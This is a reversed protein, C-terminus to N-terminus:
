RPRVAFFEQLKQGPDDAKMFAEGILFANIGNKQLHAVDKASHIGSESVLLCEKSAKNALRISTELSTEFTHLNRNNIGILKRGLSVALELEKEDHVEVLLDLGIEESLQGLDKCQMPDLASVILLIADAGMARTEYVQYPDIIFDKRLVPLLCAGRAQELYDRSGQFFHEDTLVSLCTAGGDEYSHALGIPDFGQERILGKSPSAKKIEAIVGHNHLAVSTKLASHFGRIPEASEAISRTEGLRGKKLAKAVEQKKKEIIKQLIDAVVMM